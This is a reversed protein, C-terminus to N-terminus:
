DIKYDKGKQTIIYSASRDGIKEVFGNEVLKKMSGSVSRSAVGMGNAIDVSKMPVTIDKLYALIVKGKDTIEPKTSVDGERLVKIYAQINDTMLENTKTEDISMLEDLFNLFEEKM